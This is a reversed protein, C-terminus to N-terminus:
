HGIESHKGSNNGGRTMLMRKQEEDLCLGGKSNYLESGPCNAKGKARTFIEAQKHEKNPNCYLGDFGHISLCDTENAPKMEQSFESFGEKKTTTPAPTKTVPAPTKTVPAPTKTVPAPAKTTPAPAKTTPAPAKTTPAPAKTTPAPTEKNKKKEEEKKKKEEEKKKKEEETLPKNQKVCSYLSLTIIMLLTIMIVMSTSRNM